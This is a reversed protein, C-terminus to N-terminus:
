KSQAAFHLKAEDWLKDLEALDCQEPTKDQAALKQEIYAFRTRFKAITGSLATDCDQDLKRGVNIMSFLCDGLEDQIQQKDQQTIAQKLETIEEELKQWAGDVQQWDFGLTAAYDQLKQAQTISAGIKIKDLRSVSKHPQAAREEAKIQQWIVNVEDQNLASFNELFVHPHRRILKEILSNIVEQLDFAGKEAYMQSQFVVQLLLDGLEEKIHTIDGSQIADEVEYAEEIAYKTLSQPTQAQDWPCEVRLRQMLEVLSQIETHVTKKCM